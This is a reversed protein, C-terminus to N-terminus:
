PSTDITVAQPTRDENPPASDNMSRVKLLESSLLRGDAPAAAVFNRRDPGRHGQIITMSPFIM